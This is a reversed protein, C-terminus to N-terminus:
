WYSGDLYGDDDEHDLDGSLSVCVCVRFVLLKPTLLSALLGLYAERYRYQLTDQEESCSSRESGSEEDPYENRWNGEDSHTSDDMVTCTIHIRVMPTTRMKMVSRTTQAQSTMCWNRSTHTLPSATGTGTALSHMVSAVHVSSSSIDPQSFVYWSMMEQISCTKAYYLDFVYDSSGPTPPM